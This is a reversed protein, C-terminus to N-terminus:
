KGRIEGVINSNELGLSVAVKPEQQRSAHWRLVAVTNGEHGATSGFGSEVGTGAYNGDALINMRQIGGDGDGKLANKLTSSGCKTSIIKLGAEVKTTAVITALSTVMGLPMKGVKWSNKPWGCAQNQQAGGADGEEDGGKDIGVLM